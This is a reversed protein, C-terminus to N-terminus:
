PRVVLPWTAEVGGANRPLTVLLMVDSLCQATPPHGLTDSRVVAQTVQGAGNASLLLNVTGQATPQEIQLLDLCAALLERQARVAALHDDPSVPGVVTPADYTLGPALVGSPMTMSGGTQRAPQTPAEGVLTGEPNLTGDLFGRTDESAQLATHRASGSKLDVCDPPGSSAPVPVVVSWGAPCNRPVGACQKRRRDWHQGEWCCTRGRNMAVQGERCAADAAHASGLGMGLAGMAMWWTWM